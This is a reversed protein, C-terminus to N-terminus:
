IYIYIYIYCPIPNFTFYISLYLSLCLSFSLHTYFTLLSISISSSFFFIYQHISVCSRPITRLQIVKRNVFPLFSKSLLVRIIATDGIRAAVHLPTDGEANRNSLSSNLRLLRELDPVSSCEIAEFIDTLTTVEGTTSVEFDSCYIDDDHKWKYKGDKRRKAVKGFLYLLFAASEEDSSSGSSWTEALETMSHFFEVFTLAKIRGNVSDQNWDVAASALADRPVYPNVLAKYLKRNLASYEEKGLSGTLGTKTISNTSALDWFREVISLTAGLFPEYSDSSAGGSGGGAGNGQGKEKTEFLKKSPDRKAKAPTLISKQVDDEAGVSGEGFGPGSRKM